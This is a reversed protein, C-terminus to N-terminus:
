IKYKWAGVVRRLIRHSTNEIQHVREVLRIQSTLLEFQAHHILACTAIIVQPLCIFCPFGRPPIVITCRSEQDSMDVLTTM